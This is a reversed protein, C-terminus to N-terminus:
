GAGATTTGPLGPVPAGPEGTGSATGARAAAVPAGGEPRQPAPAGPAQPSPARRRGLADLAALVPTREIVRSFSVRESALILAVGAAGAGLRLARSPHAALATGLLAGLANAGTDGLMTEEGLDEPLSAAVTGLAGAALRRTAPARGPAALLLAAGAGAAKLARGSRLDLLNIVNAWSAVVVASGAADALRARRGRRQLDAATLAATLSTPVARGGLGSLGGSPMAGAAAARSGSLLAGAVAAGAGIVAIKLVGTTVHGRGLARLHGALGKATEQGDHAGADLDDALGAGAGATVAVLAALAAAGLEAREAAEAAHATRAQRPWPACLASAAIAGAAAGVGGRLSVTRGHFNARELAPIPRMLATSTDVAVRAAGLASLGLRVLRRIPPAGGTAGAGGGAGTTSATLASAAVRRSATTM